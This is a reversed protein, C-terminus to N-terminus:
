FINAFGEERWFSFKALLPLFEQFVSILSGVARWGVCFGCGAGFVGRIVAAVGSLRKQWGPFFIWVQLRELWCRGADPGSFGRIRVGKVCHATQICDKHDFFNILLKLM